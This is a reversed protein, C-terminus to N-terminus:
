SRKKVNKQLERLIGGKLKAPIEKETSPIEKEQAPIEKKTTL